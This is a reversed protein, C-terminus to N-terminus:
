NVDDPDNRSTQAILKLRNVSNSGGRVKAVGIRIDCNPERFASTRGGDISSRLQGDFDPEQKLEEKTRKDAASGETVKIAGKFINKEFFGDKIRGDPFTMVGKGNQIGKVWEGKYTSGDTWVM